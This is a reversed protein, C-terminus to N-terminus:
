IQDYKDPFWLEVNKKINLLSLYKYDEKYKENINLINEITWILIM